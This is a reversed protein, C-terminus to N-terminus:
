RQEVPSGYPVLTKIRESSDAATIRWGTDGKELRMTQVENRNEYVYEVRVRVEGGTLVEPEMVAVGKLAANSVQLYKRFSEESSDSIAQRFQTEMAGSYCALYKKVDGDRAADLMAYIVDQPTVRAPPRRTYAFLVVGALIALTLIQAARRQNM